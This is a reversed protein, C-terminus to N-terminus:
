KGQMADLLRKSSRYHELTTGNPNKKWAEYAKATADAQRNIQSISHHIKKSNNNRNNSRESGISRLENEARVNIARTVRADFDAKNYKPSCVEESVKEEGMNSIVDYYTGSLYWSGEGHRKGHYYNGYYWDGDPWTTLVIGHPYGNEDFSGKHEVGNARHFTGASPRGNSTAGKFWSGDNYRILKGFSPDGVIGSNELSFDNYGTSRRVYSNQLSFSAPQAQAQSALLLLTIFSLVSRKM